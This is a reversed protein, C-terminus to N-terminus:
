NYPYIILKGDGTIYKQPKMNNKLEMKLVFCLAKRVNLLHQLRVSEKTKWIYLFAKYLIHIADWM